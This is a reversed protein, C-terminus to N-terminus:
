KQLSNLKTQLDETSNHRFSIMRAPLRTRAVSTDWTCVTTRTSLRVPDRGSATVLWRWIRMTDPIVSFHQKVTTCPLSIIDSPTFPPLIGILVPAMGLRPAFRTADAQWASKPRRRISPITRWDQPLRQPFDVIDSPTDNDTASPAATAHLKTLTRKDARGELAAKMTSGVLQGEDHVVNKSEM